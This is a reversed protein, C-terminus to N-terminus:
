TTTQEVAQPVTASTAATAMQPDVAAGAKRRLADVALNLAEALQHLQDGRRLRCQGPDEGAAIRRLHKEFHVLPGAYRFTVLVGLGFVFPFMIGISIFFQKMGITSAEAQSVALQGPMQMFLDTVLRQVLIAQMMGSCLAFFLCILILQLQLSPLPLVNKRRYKM